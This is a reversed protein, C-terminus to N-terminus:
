SAAPKRCIMLETTPSEHKARTLILEPPTLIAGLVKGAVESRRVAGHLLRWWARALRSESDVPANMLVFMPRRRVIEFGADRLCRSSSELSRSVQVNAAARQGNHLFNDSWILFGGPKLLRFLNEIARAYREDDVIHFLVDFASIVDFSAAALPVTEDGIDAVVFQLAPYAERLHSVATETIDLGTIEKVGLGLWADVYFGTGAGIDLVKCSAPDAVLPRATRRFVRGRIRYLAQNYNLGMAAYGVGHLSYEEGLRKEWYAKPDFAKGQTVSM